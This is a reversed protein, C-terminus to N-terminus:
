QLSLKSAKEWSNVGCTFMAIQVGQRFNEIYMTTEIPDKLAYELLPTAMAYFDAGLARAKVASVPDRLGGSAVVLRNKKHKAAGIIAFDTPVGVDKFWSAYDNNDARKAEIWGYSTGGVGAVDIGAVGLDFLKKATEEDIGHGVEKIFVPVGISNVLMGIKNILGSYNTDGGPQLAEQLPNIHLYLGDAEIMDIAKKFDKINLGNNLQIAGVNAFIIANPANERALKFTKVVEEKEIAIRQSGVGLAVNSAEAAIALNTNITAAHATGGTMSSIILPQSLKKGFLVTETSVSKLDIEPLANYPLRYKKFPNEQGQSSADLSLKIHDEKRQEIDSM